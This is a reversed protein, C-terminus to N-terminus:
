AKMFFFDVVANPNLGIVFFYAYLKLAYIFFLGRWVVWVM